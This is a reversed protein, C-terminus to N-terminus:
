HKVVGGHESLCALTMYSVHSNRHQLQTGCPPIINAPSLAGKDPRLMQLSAELFLGDEQREPLVHASPVRNASRM